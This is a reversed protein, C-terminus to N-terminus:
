LFIDLIMSAFEILSSLIRIVLTLIAIAFVGFVPIWLGAPLWAYVGQLLFSLM